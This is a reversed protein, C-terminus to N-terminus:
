EIFERMENEEILLCSMRNDVNKLRKFTEVVLCTTEHDANFLLTGINSITHMNVAGLFFDSGAILYQSHMHPTNFKRKERYIRNKHKHLCM